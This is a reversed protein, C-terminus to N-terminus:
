QYKHISPIEKNSIQNKILLVKLHLKSNNTISGSRTKGNSGSGTPKAKYIVSAAPMLKGPLTLVFIYYFSSSFMIHSNM